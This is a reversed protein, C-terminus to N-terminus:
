ASDASSKRGGKKEKRKAEQTPNRMSEVILRRIFASQKGTSPALSVLYVAQKIFM